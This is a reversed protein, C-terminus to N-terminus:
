KQDLPSLIIVWIGSDPRSVAEGREGDQTLAVNEDYACVSHPVGETTLPSFITADVCMVERYATSRLTLIVIIPTTWWATLSALSGFLRSFVRFARGSRPLDGFAHARLRLRSEPPPGRSSLFDYSYWVCGFARPM